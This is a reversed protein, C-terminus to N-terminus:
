VRKTNSKRTLHQICKDKILKAVKTGVIQRVEPALTENDLLLSGYKKRDKISKKSIVETLFNRHDLVHPGKEATGELIQKIARNFYFQRGIFNEHSHSPESCCYPFKYHSDLIFIKARIKNIFKRMDWLEQFILHRKRPRYTVLHKILRGNDTTELIDSKKTEFQLTYHFSFIVLDNRGLEKLTQTVKKNSIFEKFDKFNSFFFKSLEDYNQKFWDNESIQHYLEKLDLSGLFYIKRPSAM